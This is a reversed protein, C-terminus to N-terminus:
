GPAVRGWGTAGGRGAGGADEVSIARRGEGPEVTGGSVKGALLAGVVDKPDALGACCKASM